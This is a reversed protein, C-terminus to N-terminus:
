PSISWPSRGAADCLKSRPRVASWWSWRGRPRCTVTCAQSCANRPWCRSRFRWAYHNTSAAANM